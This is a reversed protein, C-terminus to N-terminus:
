SSLIWLAIGGMTALWVAGMAATALRLRNYRGRTQMWLDRSAEELRSLEMAQAIIARFEIERHAYGRMYGGCIGPGFKVGCRSCIVADLPRGINVEQGCILCLLRKVRAAGENTAEDVEAALRPYPNASDNM